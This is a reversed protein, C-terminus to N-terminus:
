PFIPPLGRYYHSAEYKKSFFKLNVLVNKAWEEGEAAYREVREIAQQLGEQGQGTRIVELHRHLLQYLEVRSQDTKKFPCKWTGAYPGRDTTGPIDLYCEAIDSSHGSAEQHLYYLEPDEFYTFQLDNEMPPFDTEASLRELRRCTLLSTSREVMEIDKVYREIKLAPANQEVQTFLNTYCANQMGFLLDVIPSYKPNRNFHDRGMEITCTGSDWVGKFAGEVLAIQIPRGLTGEMVRLLEPFFTHIKNLAPLLEQSCSSVASPLEFSEKIRNRGLLHLRPDKNLPVQIEM